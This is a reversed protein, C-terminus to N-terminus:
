LHTANFRFLNLANFASCDCVVSLQLKEAYDKIIITDNTHAHTHTCTHTNTHTLAISLMRRRNICQKENM